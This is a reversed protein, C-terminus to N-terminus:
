KKMMLQATPIYYLDLGGKGGRWVQRDNFALSRLDNRFALGDTADPDTRFARLASDGCWVALLRWPRM